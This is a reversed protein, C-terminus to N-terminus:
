RVNAYRRKKREHKNTVEVLQRLPGKVPSLTGVRRRQERWIAIMHQGSLLNLRSHLRATNRTRTWFNLKNELKDQLVVALRKVIINASQLSFLLRLSLYIKIELFMHREESPKNSMTNAYHVFDKKIYCGMLNWGYVLARSFLRGGDVRGSGGIWNCLMTMKFDHKYFVDAKIMEFHVYFRAVFM